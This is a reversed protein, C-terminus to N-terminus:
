ANRRRVTFAVRPVPADGYDVDNEFPFVSPDGDGSVDVPIDFTIGVQGTGDSENIYPGPRNESEENAENVGANIAAVTKAIFESIKM